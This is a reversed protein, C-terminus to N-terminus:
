DSRLSISPDLSASRRAPLYSALASVALLLAFAAVWTAPDKPDVGFLADQLLHAGGLWLGTGALLGVLVVGLNSRVMLALINGRSAGLAMRVGIEHTRQRAAQATVSYVGVAALLLAVIGFGAMLTLLLEQQAISARWVTQMSRPRSIPLGSDLERLRSRVIPLAALPDSGDVRLVVDMTHSWDQDRNEFVEARPPVGPAVQHHDGVVGVIEYWNSNADPNRDYAIRRGLVEEGDFHESAFQENVVVVLPGSRDSPEFHRGRILPIRLAEFYGRGARRHVIELGETGDEWGEAVFPSSWGAATLPLQGVTGVRQIGASAELREAFDDWFQLVQDRGPYRDEPLTVRVNLVSAVQFGPDVARLRLFSQLLLGAGLILTLALAVETGVLFSTRRKSRASTGSRESEKLVSAPGAKAASWAPGTGFVVASLVALLVTAGVVRADLAMTTAGPIGLPHLREVWRIAGWGLLLGLGSGLTALALAETLLAGVIRGRGAGLASRVAMERARVHGRVFMLSAVNTCALLLLLTVAVTLMGMPRQVDRILFERLPELGAGMVRNTEPYEGQLASVATQLQANALETTAGAELRGIARAFHARRFWTQQRAGTEWGWPRWLDATPIPFAFGQPMVGVIRVAEGSLDVTREIVTPDAGFLRQWTDYSLVVRDAGSEWTDSPAFGSGLLPTVGLLSFFNGTVSAGNLLHPEGDDVFTYENTFESYVTIGTFAPVREEWDLANAPAVQADVWGFEPNTEYLAVLEGEAAFPLPRLLHANLVSVIAVAGGVGLGLVAVVTAAFGPHRRIMRLGFRLDQGIREMMGTGGVRRLTHLSSVSERGSGQLRVALSVAGWTDRAGVRAVERWGVTRAEDM